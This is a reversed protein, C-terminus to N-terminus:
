SKLSNLACLVICYLEVFTNTINVLTPTASHCEVSSQRFSIQDKVAGESLKM